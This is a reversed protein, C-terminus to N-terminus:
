IPTTFINKITRFVIAMDLILSRNKLYYLDYEFKTAADEVSSSPKYNIQAWGTVGPLVRQRIHYYPVEKDYLSALDFGEPRPGVFSVEGKIINILQPLEDLHAHRLIKGFGTIRTDRNVTWAPGDSGHRMTRFKIISFNKWDRGVRPQTFFAPGPSSLVILMAILLGIPLLIIAMVAAVVAEFLRKIHDYFQGEGISREIFWSEDIDELPIFQFVLECFDTLTYVTVGNSLLSYLKSRVESKTLLERPVVLLDAKCEAVASIIGSLNENKGFSKEVKYGLQPNGDLARSIKEIMPPEAVIVTGTQMNKVGIRSVVFQRLPIEIAAFIIIFVALNTKPTLGALPTLYFFIVSIVVGSVIGIVLMKLLNIGNRLLRLDYLGVVFFALLWFIFLISFPGFHREAIPNRFDAHYRFALMLLLSLYLVAADIILLFLAKARHESRM